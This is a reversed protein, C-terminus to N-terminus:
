ISTISTLTSHHVKLKKRMKSTRSDAERFCAEEQTPRSDPSTKSSNDERNINGKKEEKLLQQDM